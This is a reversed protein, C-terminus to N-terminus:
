AGAEPYLKEYAEKRKQLLEDRKPNHIDMIAKYEETGPTNTADIFKKLETEASVNGATAGIRKFDDESYKSGETALFEMVLPNNIKDGLADVLAQGGRKTVLEKVIATNKEFDAGWKQRLAAQGAEVQKNWADDQAKLMGNVKGLYWQNIKDVQKNTLGEAFSFDTFEKMSEPTVKIGPHLDKIETFKYGEPKEPRGLATYVPNWAEPADTDKPLIIGKASIMKALETHGKLLSPIDKYKTINPDAVLEPALGTRIEEPFSDIVNPEHQAQGEM